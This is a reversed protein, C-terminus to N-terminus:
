GGADSSVRSGADAASPVTTCRESVCDAEVDECEAEVECVFGQDACYAATVDIFLQELSDAKDGLVAVPCGVFWSETEACEVRTAVLLCDSKSSCGRTLSPEGRSVFEMDRIAGPCFDDPHRYSGRCSGEDCVAYVYFNDLHFGGCDERCLADYVGKAAEYEDARLRSYAIEGTDLSRGGPCPIHGYDLACDADSSCPAAFREALEEDIEGARDILAQCLAFSGADVHGADSGHVSQRECSIAGTSALVFPVLKLALDRRM